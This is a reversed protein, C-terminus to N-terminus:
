ASSSSLPSYGIIRHFALSLVDVWASTVTVVIKGITVIRWVILWSILKLSSNGILWVFSLFFLRFAFRATHIQTHTFTEKPVKFLQRRRAEGRLELHFWLTYWLRCSEVPSALSVSEGLFPLTKQTEVGTNFGMAISCTRQEINGEKIVGVQWLNKFKVIKLNGSSTRLKANKSEMKSKYSLVTRIGSYPMGNLILM